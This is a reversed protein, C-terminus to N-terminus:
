PAVPFASGSSCLVAGLPQVASPVNVDTVVLGNDAMKARELELGLVFGAHDQLAEGVPLDAVCDIGLGTLLTPPGICSRQLIAPSFTAGASVIVEGGEVNQWEGAIRARVGVARRGDFLVRDVLAGGVIRLNARGRAAELYSDNTTVRVGYQINSATPSIGTAGPANHDPQWRHGAALASEYMSEDM